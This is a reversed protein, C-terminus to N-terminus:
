HARTLKSQKLSQKAEPSFKQTWLRSKSYSPNVVIAVTLYWAAFLYNQEAFLLGAKRYYFQGMTRLYRTLRSMVPQSDYEKLFQSLQLEEKGALRAQHRAVVYRTVKKQWFFKQMSLSQSHIRYLLLPEPIVLIPGYNAMRDFLEFDEAATIPYTELQTIYGGAKLLIEKNILTSPHIVFPIHGAERLEYFKETTTTGQQVLSLHKGTSSIHEAYTGWGIVTPNERVANIQKELREPKALDDSDMIALWSYKASEIALNRAASAGSNKETQFISIRSDQEQRKYV